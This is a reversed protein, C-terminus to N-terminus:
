MSVTFGASLPVHIKACFSRLMREFYIMEAQVALAWDAKALGLTVVSLSSESRTRRDHEFLHLRFECDSVINAAVTLIYGYILVLYLNTYFEPTNGYTPIFFFFFFFSSLRLRSLNRM